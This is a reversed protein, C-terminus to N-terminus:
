SKLFGFLDDDDLAVNLDIRDWRYLDLSDDDTRNDFGLMPADVGPTAGAVDNLPQARLTLANPQQQDGGASPGAQTNNSYVQSSPAENLPKNAAIMPAQTTSSTASSSTSTSSGMLMANAMAMSAPTVGNRPLAAIQRYDAQGRAQADQASINQTSKTGPLIARPQHQQGYQYQQQQQQQQQANAQMQAQAGWPTHAYMSNDEIPHNSLHQSVEVKRTLMQRHLNMQAQMALHMQVQLDSPEDHLSFPQDGGNGNEAGAPHAVAGTLHPSMLSSLINWQPDTLQEMGAGAGAGAAGSAGVAAVAAATAPDMAMGLPYRYAAAAAAMAARNAMQMGRTNNAKYANAAYSEETGAGAPAMAPRAYEHPSSHRRSSTNTQSTRRGQEKDEMHMSRHRQLRHHGDSASEPTDEENEESVADSDSDKDDKKPCIPFVFMSNHESKGTTASKRRRKLNNKASQDYYELFEQRSREYNLRYKQLHSKLHETTLGAHPGAADM